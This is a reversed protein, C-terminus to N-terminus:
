FVLMFFSRPKCNSWGITIGFGPGFEQLLSFLCWDKLYCYNQGQVAEDELRESSVAETFHCKVLEEQNICRCEPKDCLNTRNGTPGNEAQVIVVGLVFILSVFRYMTDFLNIEVPLVSQPANPSFSNKEEYITNYENGTIIHRVQKSTLGFHRKSRWVRDHSRISVVSDRYAM